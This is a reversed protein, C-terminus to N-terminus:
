SVFFYAFTLIIVSFCLSYKSLAFRMQPIINRGHKAQNKDSKRKKEASYGRFFLGVILLLAGLLVSAFRVINKKRIILM